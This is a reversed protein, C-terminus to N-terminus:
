IQGKIFTKSENFYYGNVTYGCSSSLCAIYVRYQYGLAGVYDGGSIINDMSKYEEGINNKAYLMVRVDTIAEVKIHYDPEALSGKGCGALFIAGLM